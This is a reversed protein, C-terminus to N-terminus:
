TAAWIILGIWFWIPFAVEAMLPPFDFYHQNFDGDLHLYAGIYPVIMIGFILLCLWFVKKPMSM